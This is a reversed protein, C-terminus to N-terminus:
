IDAVDTGDPRVGQFSLFDSAMGELLSLSRSSLEVGGSPYEDPILAVPDASQDASSRTSNTDAPSLTTDREVSVISKSLVLPPTAAPLSSALSLTSAMGDKTVNRRDCDSDTGAWGLIVDMDARM